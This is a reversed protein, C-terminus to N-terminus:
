ENLPQVGPAPWVEDRFAAAMTLVMAGWQAIAERTAVPELWLDCALTPQGDEDVYARGFRRTANWRDIRERDVAGPRTQGPYVAQLSAGDDEVFVVVEEHDRWILLSRPDFVRTSIDAAAFIDALEEITAPASAIETGATETRTGACGGLLLVLGVMLALAGGKM